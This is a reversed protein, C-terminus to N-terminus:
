FSIPTATWTGKPADQLDVVAESIGEPLKGLNPYRLFATDLTRTKPSVKLYCRGGQWNQCLWSM